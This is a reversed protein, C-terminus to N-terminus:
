AHEKWIPRLADGAISVVRAGAAELERLVSEEQDPYVGKVAEKVVLVNWPTRAAKGAELAALVSARVCFDTALGCVVLTDIHAETHPATPEEDRHSHPFLFAPSFAGHLLQSLPAAAPSDDATGLPVAFASYADVDRDTGQPDAGVGPSSAATRTRTTTFPALRAAVCHDPWLEQPVRAGTRADRVPTTTFPALGHRSAFSIHAPPHSDQSAVVLTWNADDLLRYVHPLISDGHRVALSGSPPLFDYQPDVILLARHM